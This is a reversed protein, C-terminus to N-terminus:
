STGGHPGDKFTRLFECPTLNLALNPFSHSPLPQRCLQSGAKVDLDLVEGPLMCRFKAILGFVM